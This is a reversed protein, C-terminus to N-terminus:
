YVSILFFFLLTLFAASVFKLKGRSWREVKGKNIFTRYSQYGTAIIIMIQFVKPLVIGFMPLFLNLLLLGLVISWGMPKGWVM